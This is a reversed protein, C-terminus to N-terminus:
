NTKWHSLFDVMCIQTHLIGGKRVEDKKDIQFIHFSLSNSKM